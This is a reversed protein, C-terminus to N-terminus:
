DAERRDPQQPHLLRSVRLYKQPSFLKFVGEPRKDERKVLAALGTQLGIEVENM